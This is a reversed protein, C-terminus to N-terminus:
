YALLMRAGLVSVCGTDSAPSVELVAVLGRDVGRIRRATRIDYESKEFRGADENHVTFARHLYWDVLDTGPDPVVGAAVADRTITSVGMSGFTDLNAAGPAVWLQFLM